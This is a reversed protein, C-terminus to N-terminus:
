PLVDAPRGRSAAAMLLDLAQDRRQQLQALQQRLGHIRAIRRQRALDPVDIEFANLDALSLFPMASGRFTALLRTRTPEANLCWCLYDPDLVQAHPRVIAFQGSACVNPPPSQLRVARPATTRVSLLVDGDRLMARAASRSDPLPALQEWQVDGETTLDRGQLLRCAGGGAGMRRSTIGPRVDAVEALFVRRSTEPM